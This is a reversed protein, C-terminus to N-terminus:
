RLEVEEGRYQLIVKDKFIAQVRVDGIMQGRKVFFTKLAKTDEVMADPDGSWSIGVLKLHGTAEIIEGSPGAPEPPEPADGEGKEPGMRFIDRQRIQELYYSVTNKLLSGELFMDAKGIGKFEPREFPMKRLRLVSGTFNGVACVALIAASLGLLNNILKIDLQKKGSLSLHKKFWDKLFLFRGLWASLSILSLNRHRVAQAKLAAVDKARPAEILNLLQKEPTLPREQAM